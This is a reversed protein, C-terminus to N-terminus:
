KNLSLPLSLLCKIPKLTILYWLYVTCKRELYYGLPLYYELVSRQKNMHLAMPELGIRAGYVSLQCRAEMSFMTRQRVERHTLEARKSWALHGAQDWALRYMIKDVCGAEWRLKSQVWFVRQLSILLLRWLWRTM